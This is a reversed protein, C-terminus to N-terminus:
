HRILRGCCRTLVYSLLRAFSDAYAHRRIFSVTNCEYHTRVIATRIQQNSVQQRIHANLWRANFGEKRVDMRRGKFRSETRDSAPCNVFAARLRRNTPRCARKLNGATRVYAARLGTRCGYVDGTSLLLSLPSLSLSFFLSHSPPAAAHLNRYM